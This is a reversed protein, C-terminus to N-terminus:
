YLGQIYILYVNVMCKKWTQLESCVSVSGLGWFTAQRMLLAWGMLFIVIIDPPSPINLLCAAVFAPTLHCQRPQGISQAMGKLVAMCLFYGGISDPHLPDKLSCM